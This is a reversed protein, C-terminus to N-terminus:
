EASAKARWHHGASISLIDDPDDPHFRNNPNCFFNFCHSGFKAVWLPIGMAHASAGWLFNGFNFNNQALVGERPTITIYFVNQYIPHDGNAAFDLRGNYLSTPAIYLCGQILGHHKRSKAGVLKLTEEIFWDPVVVARTKSNISGPDRAPDAFRAVISDGLVLCDEQAPECGLYHGGEDFIYRNQASVQFFLLVWAAAAVARKM